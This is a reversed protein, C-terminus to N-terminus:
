AEPGDAPGVFVTLTAISEEDTINDTIIVKVGAEMQGDGNNFFTHTFTDSNGGGSMWMETPNNRYFWEYTFNGEPCASFLLEEGSISSPDGKIWPEQTPISSFQNLSQNLVPTDLNSNIPSIPDVESTCGTMALLVLFLISNFRLKEM